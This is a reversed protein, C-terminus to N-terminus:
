VWEAPERASRIGPRHVGAWAALGGAMLWFPNPPQRQRKRAEHYRMADLTGLVPEIFHEFAHRPVEPDDYRCGIFAVAKRVAQELQVNGLDLTAVDDQHQTSM